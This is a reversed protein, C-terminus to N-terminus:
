FEHFFFFRVEQKWRGKAAEEEADQTGGEPNIVQLGEYGLIRSFSVGILTALGIHIGCILRANNLM